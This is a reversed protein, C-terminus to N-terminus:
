ISKKHEKFSRDKNDTYKRMHHLEALKKTEYRMTPLM